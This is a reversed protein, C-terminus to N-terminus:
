KRRFIEKMRWKEKKRKKEEFKERREKRGKGFRFAQDWVAASTFMIVICCLGICILWCSVISFEHWSNQEKAVTFAGEVCIGESMLIAVIKAIMSVSVTKM